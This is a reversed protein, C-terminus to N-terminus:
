VANSTHGFGNEGRATPPADQALTWAVRCVQRVVMQGIRDGRRVLFPEKGHNILILKIEGRYDADITGPSNLLTVGHRLALGSRPRLEAEYGDPLAIIFGTPILKRDGPLITEESAVAAPLDMGAAQATMYAPLLLDEAGPLRIISVSVEEVM